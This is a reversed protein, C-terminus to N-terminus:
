KKKPFSKDIPKQGWRKGLLYVLGLLVLKGALRGANYAPSDRNIM